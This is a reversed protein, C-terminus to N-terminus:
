KDNKDDFTPRKAPGTRGGRGGPGGPGGGFMQSMDPAMEEASISGDNDKDLTKLAAIANNIEDTSLEGNKDADLAQIIPMMAM